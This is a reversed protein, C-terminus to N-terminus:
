YTGGTESSTIPAVPSANVTQDKAKKFISYLDFFKKNIVDVAEDRQIKGSNLDMLSDWFITRGVAFGNVGGVTAGVTLWEKVKEEGAGRGLIVVSVNSRSADRVERVLREYDDKSEMGEMKWIDPEVGGNQLEKIVQITLKPRLFRDYDEQKNNCLALQKETPEVLVELLFKYGKEHCYDSVIKINTQQRKKLEEEDDPNYHLLIKAFTPQYKDIHEKFKEGYELSFEKQGTKEATLITIFGNQKADRLVKDGYEEDVLIAAGGKPIGLSVAKKFGDYIVSKYDKIKEIQEPTLKDMDTQFMHQSFTNRHDFALIYLPKDYGLNDMRPVAKSVEEVKEEMESKRLLGKQAGINAVVSTANWSGWEMATPLSHGYLSAAIFGSTYADGAGTRGVVPGDNLGEHYFEGHDSLAYSGKKGDTIIVTNSGLKQLETLLKKVYDLGDEETTKDYLLQEAEEKNVFLMNTRELVKRVTERGDKVQRSGPNFALTSNNQAIFDLVKKYPREWERGLSTLYVFPTTFEELHFDHERQVDEVFITRDGQVEIIVSFSSKAGTTQKVLLRDINERALSNRIKLSLEDDGIETCLGVKIGLRTLGVAVNTANGGMSFEMSDVDIKEGHKLRLERSNEDIKYKESAKKLILFADITAEGITIVQYAHKKM